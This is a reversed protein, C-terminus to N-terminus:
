EKEAIVVRDFSAREALELMALAVAKMEAKSSFFLSDLTNQDIYDLQFSDENEKVIYTYGDESRLAINRTINIM